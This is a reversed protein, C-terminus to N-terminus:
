IEYVMRESDPKQIAELQGYFSFIAIVDCNASMTDDKLYEFTARNDKDIKTVPLM